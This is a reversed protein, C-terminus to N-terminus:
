NDIGIDIQRIQRDIQWDIQMQDHLFETREKREIGYTHVVAVVVVVYIYIYVVQINVTVRTYGTYGLYTNHRYENYRSYQQLAGVKHTQSSAIFGFGLVSYKM